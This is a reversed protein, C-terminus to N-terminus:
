KIYRNIPEYKCSSNDAFKLNIIKKKPTIQLKFTLFLIKLKNSLRYNVKVPYSYYFNPFIEKIEIMEKTQCTIFKEYYPKRGLERGIGYLSAFRFM